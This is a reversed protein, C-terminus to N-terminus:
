PSGIRTLLVSTGAADVEELSSQLLLSALHMLAGRDLAEDIAALAAKQDAAAEQAETAHAEREMEARMTAIRGALEQASKFAEDREAAHEAIRATVEDISVAAIESRLQELGIGDGTKRLEAAAEDLLGKQRAREEAAAIRQEAADTTEVGILRLLGTLDDSCRAHRDKQRALTAETKRLQEALTSKREALSRQHTLRQRLM